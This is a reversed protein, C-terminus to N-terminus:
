KQFVRLFTILFFLCFLHTTEKFFRTKWLGVGLFLTCTSLKWFSGWYGSYHTPLGVRSEFPGGNAVTIYLYEAKLPTGACWQLTYTSKKWLARVLMELTYILFLKLGVEIGWIFQLNFNTGFLESFVRDLLLLFTFWTTIIKWQRLIFSKM